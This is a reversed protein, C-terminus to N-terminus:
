VGTGSGGHCSQRLGCRPGSAAPKASQRYRDAALRSRADHRLHYRRARRRHDGTRLGSERDRSANGRCCGPQQGTRCHRRDLDGRDPQPDMRAPQQRCDGGHDGAAGRIARAFSEGSGRRLRFGRCLHLERGRPRDDAQRRVGHGQSLGWSSQTPEGQVSGPPPRTGHGDRDGLRKRTRDATRGAPRPDPRPLAQGQRRDSSKGGKKCAVLLRRASICRAFFM